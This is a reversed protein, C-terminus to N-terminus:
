KERSEVATRVRRGVREMMKTFRMFPRLLLRGVVMCGVVVGINIIGLRVHTLTHLIDNHGENRLIDGDFIMVIFEIMTIIVSSMMLGMAVMVPEFPDEVPISRFLIVHFCTMTAWEFFFIVVDFWLGMLAMMFGNIALIFGGLVLFLPVFIHEARDRSDFGLYNALRNLIFNGNRRFTEMGQNMSTLCYVLKNEM